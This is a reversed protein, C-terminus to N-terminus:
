AAETNRQRRTAGYAAVRPDVAGTLGKNWPVRGRGADSLKQRTEVSPHMDRKSESLRRRTEESIPLRNKHADRMKLRTM